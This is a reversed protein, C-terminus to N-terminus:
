GIADAGTEGLVDLVRDLEEGTHVEVLVDLQLSRALYAFRKVEAM